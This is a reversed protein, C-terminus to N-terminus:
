QSVQDGACDVKVYVGARKAWRVAHPADPVYQMFPGGCKACAGYERRQNRVVGVIARGPRRSSSTVRKTAKTTGDSRGQFHREWDTDVFDLHLVTGDADTLESVPHGAGRGARM